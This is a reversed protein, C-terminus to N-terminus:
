PDPMFDLTTRLGHLLVMRTLDDFTFRLDFAASHLEVPSRPDVALCTLAATVAGPSWADPLTQSPRDSGQLQDCQLGDYVLCNGRFM